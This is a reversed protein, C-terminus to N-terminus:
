RNKPLAGRCVGRNLVNKKRKLAGQVNRVVRQRPLHGREERQRGPVVDDHRLRVPRALLALEEQAHKRILMGVDPSHCQMCVSPQHSVGGTQKIERNQLMFHVGCHLHYARSSVSRIVPLFIVAAYLKGVM